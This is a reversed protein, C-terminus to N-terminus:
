EAEPSKAEESESGSDLVESELSTVLRGAKVPGLAVMFSVTPDEIWASVRDVLKSLVQWAHCAM